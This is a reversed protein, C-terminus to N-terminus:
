PRSEREFLMALHLERALDVLEDGHSPYRKYLLKFTALAPVRTSVSDGADLRIHIENTINAIRHFVTRESFRLLLDWDELCSLTEDFLGCQDFCARRIGWGASPIFNRVKLLERSFRLDQFVANRQFAERKGNVLRENVKESQTYAVGAGSERLGHLLTQLHHPLYLDDDDLFALVDGRSAEIACNRAHAQGTPAPLRLATTRAAVAKSLVSVVSSIDEGGDNVIVLEWNGYTQRAVSELADKLLSTRNQTPVIVSVLPADALPRLELRDGPLSAGDQLISQLVDFLTKDLGPIGPNLRRAAVFCPVAERLKGQYFRSLGLNIHAEHMAPRLEVARSFAAEAEAERGLLGLARGLMFWLRLSDPYLVKLPELLALADGTTSSEILLEARDLIESLGDSM